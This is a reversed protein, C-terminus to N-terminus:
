RRSIREFWKEIIPPVDTITPPTGIRSSLPFIISKSKEIEQILQTIFPLLTELAIYMTILIIIIIMMSGFNMPAKNKEM